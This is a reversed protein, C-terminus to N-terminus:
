ARGVAEAAVTTESRPRRPPRQRWGPRVLYQLGMAWGAVEHALLALRWGSLTQIAGLATKLFYVPLQTFIRQLDGSPRYRDAQAVLAAVHGRM